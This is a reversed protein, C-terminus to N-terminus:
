MPTLAIALPNLLWNIRDSKLFVLFEDAQFASINQVSAEYLLSELFNEDGLSSRKRCIVKKRGALIPQLIAAVDERKSESLGM